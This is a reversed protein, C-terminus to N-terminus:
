DSARSTRAGERFAERQVCPGEIPVESGTIAYLLERPIVRPCRLKHFFRMSGASAASEAPPRPTARAGPAAAASSRAAAAEPTAARLLPWPATLPQRTRTQVHTCACTCTHPPRTPAAAAAHSAAMHLPASLCCIAAAREARGVTCQQPMVIARRRRHGASMCTMTASRKAGGVPTREARKKAGGLASPPTM